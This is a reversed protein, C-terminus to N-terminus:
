APLLQAEIAKMRDLVYSWRYNMLVFQRAAQGLQQCLDPSRLLTVIQRAMAIPDDSVLLDRGAQAGLGQNALSTTVVPRGAAMAELLKTQVGAAFRMPAVFVTARNLCANLNPVFGTVTVAPDGALRRIEPDPDAGVVELTCSPIEQRVLPLVDRVLHTAADINHPVRMHGVFILRDPQCVEGAPHFRDSDVGIPVVQLNATPCHQKLSLCDAQSILWTEEFTNAVWREFREIRPREMRYIQRWFNSRYPLSLSIENSIVDTLDVIRYLDVHAAVYPAMRFLHVYVAQFDGAAIVQDVLRQMAPLRYYLAQLPERRWINTAVSLASRRPSIQLIQIEPCYARLAALHDRESPHAIFSLLTLEHEQSLHQLFHFVRSRDGRDPPYPLRPTLCLIQM